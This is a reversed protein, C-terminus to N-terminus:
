GMSLDAGKLSLYIYINVFLINGQIDDLIGNLWSGGLVQFADSLLGISFVFLYLFFIAGLIKLINLVISKWRGKPEPTLKDSM